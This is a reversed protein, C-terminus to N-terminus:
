SLVDVLLGRIQGMLHLAIVIDQRRNILTQQLHKLKEDVIRVVQCIKQKKTSLEEVAYAKKLLADMIEKVKERYRLFEAFGGSQAFETERKELECLEEELNFDEKEEVTFFVQKLFNVKGSKQQGRLQKERYVQNRYNTTSKKTEFHIM